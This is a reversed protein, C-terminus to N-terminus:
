AHHDGGVEFPFSVKYDDYKRSLVVSIRGELAAHPIRYFSRQNTIIFFENVQESSYAQPKRVSGGRLAHINAKPDGRRDVGTATKVQVGIHEGGERRVILDLPSTPSPTFLSYGYLVYWARAMHEGAYRLRRPDYSEDLLPPDSPRTLHSAVIGSTDIGYFTAAKQATKYGCGLKEAVEKWSSCSEIAQQLEAAGWSRTHKMALHSTDLGEHRIYERVKRQVYPGIPDDPDLLSFLEQWTAAEKLAGPILGDQIVENINKPM